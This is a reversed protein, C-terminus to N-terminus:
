DYAMCSIVFSCCNELFVKSFTVILRRQSWQILLWLFDSFWNWTTFEMATVTMRFHTEKPFYSRATYRIFFQKTYSLFNKM